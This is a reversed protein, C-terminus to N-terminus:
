RRSQNSIKIGLEEALDPAYLPLYSSMQSSIPFSKFIYKLVYNKEQLEEDGTGIAYLETLGKQIVKIGDSFVGISPMVSGNLITQFSTPSYYFSVEDSIKDLTRVMFKHYNKVNEDEDDDPVAKLAFFASLLSLTILADKAQNRINQRVLDYFEEPSLELRKGTQEYVQKQKFRYLEQLTELGEPTGKVIKGTDSLSFTNFTILDVLSSLSKIGERSMIRAVTRARGWEYAEVDSAYNLKAFRVSMLSPIWNKFVMFSNTYVNQNVGRVESPNLNGTVRKTLAQTLNKLKFVELSNKDLGEIYLEGESNLKAKKSIGYENLLDKVLTEFQKEQEQLNGNYRNKYSTNKRIYERANYLKGDILVTNNWLSAFLTSQVWLDSGRM